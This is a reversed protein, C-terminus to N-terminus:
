GRYVGFRLRLSEIFTISDDIAEPPPWPQRPLGRAARWGAIRGRLAALDHSFFLADGVVVIAATVLARLAHRTRLVGYRRLFYGRAFGGQYRQWSSRTGASASGRHVAVADVAAVTGWGASRLRLALDLDESYAFVSDDLGGVDDWASRRIAAAAGSPGTLVPRDSRARAVPAGRLRPYGALVRDATLGFSEIAQEGPALL